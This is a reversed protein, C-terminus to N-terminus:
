HSIIKRMMTVIRNTTLTLALFAPLTVLFIIKMLELNIM